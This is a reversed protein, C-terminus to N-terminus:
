REVGFDLLIFVIYNLFVGPSILCFFSFDFWFFSILRVNCIDLVSVSSDPPVSSNRVGSWQQPCDQSFVLALFVRCMGVWPSRAPPFFAPSAFSVTKLFCFSRRLLLIGCFVLPIPLSLFLRSDRMEWSVYGAGRPLPGPFYCSALLPAPVLGGALVWARTRAWGKGDLVGCEWCEVQLGLLLCLTGFLHAPCRPSNAWGGDFGYVLSRDSVWCHLSVAQCVHLSSEPSACTWATQALPANASLGAKTDKTFLSGTFTGSWPNAFFQLINDTYVEFHPKLFLLVPQNWCRSHCVGLEDGAVLVLLCVLTPAPLECLLPWLATPALLDAELPCCSHKQGWGRQGGATWGPPLPELVQYSGSATRM